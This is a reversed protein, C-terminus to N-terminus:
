RENYQCWVNQGIFLIWPALSFAIYHFIRFKLGPLKNLELQQYKITPSHSSELYLSFFFLFFFSTNQHRTLFHPRFMKRLNSKSPLTKNQETNTPLSTFPHKFHSHTTNFLLFVYFLHVFFTSLFLTLLFVTMRAGFLLTLMLIQCLIQSPLFYVTCLPNNYLLLHLLWYQLYLTNLTSLSIDFM